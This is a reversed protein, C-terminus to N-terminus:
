PIEYLEWLWTDPFYKRLNTVADRNDVPETLFFLLILICRDCYYLM